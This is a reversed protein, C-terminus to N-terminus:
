RMMDSSLDEITMELAPVQWTYYELKDTLARIEQKKVQDYGELIKRKTGLERELREIYANAENMKMQVMDRDNKFADKLTRADNIQRDYTSM